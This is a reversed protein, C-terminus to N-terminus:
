QLNQMYTGTKYPKPSNKPKPCQLDSTTPPPNQIILDGNEAVHLLMFALGFGSVGWGDVKFGPNQVWRM